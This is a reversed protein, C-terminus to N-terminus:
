RSYFEVIVQVNADREAEDSQPLRLITGQTKDNSAKIWEPSRVSGLREDSLVDKFYRSSRSKECVGITEGPRVSYSPIDVPKGNILFHGHNVLQRAQARTAALGMRYIVNDLRCELLVLLNDGTSGHRRLAEEFLRYFQTERLGYLARLKQKELLQAGYASIKPPRGSNGHQGPRTPRRALIRAGKATIGIGLRRSMKGVPEYLGAM